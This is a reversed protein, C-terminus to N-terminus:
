RFIVDVKNVQLGQNRMEITYSLDAPPFWEVALDDATRAVMAEDRAICNGYPDYVYLGLPSRERGSVIVCTREAGKCAVLYIQSSLPPAAVQVPSRIQTPSTTASPAALFLGVLALWLMHKMGRVKQSKRINGPL